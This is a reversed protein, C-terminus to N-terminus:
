RRNSALLPLSFSLLCCRSSNMESCVSILAEFGLGGVCSFLIHRPLRVCLQPGREGCKRVAVLWSSKWLKIVRPAQWALQISLYDSILLFLKLKADWSSSRVDDFTRAKEQDSAQVTTVAKQAGTEACSWALQSRSAEHQRSHKTRLRRRLGLTGGLASIERTSVSRSRQGNDHRRRRKRRRRRRSQAYISM